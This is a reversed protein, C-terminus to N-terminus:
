LILKMEMEKQNIEPNFIIKRDKFGLKRYVTIASLVAYVNLEKIKHKIAYLKVTELLNRGIGTRQHAPHVFFRRLRNGILSLTGVIKGDIKVVWIKGEKSAKILEEPKDEERVLIYDTNPNAKEMQEVVKYIMRSLESAEEKKFLGIKM